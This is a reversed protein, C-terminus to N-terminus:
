KKFIDILGGTLAGGIDVSMTFKGNAVETQLSKSLESKVSTSYMFGALVGVVFGISTIIFLKKNM